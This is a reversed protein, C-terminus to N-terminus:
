AKDLVERVTRALDVKTFPKYSFANFGIDKAIEPSITNSYGTCLIIRIDEKIRKLEMALTDGTMHPMTMDTIVLAFRNPEAKFLDLAELSSTSSTVSYGLSELIRKGMQALSPEDDVFLISESGRIVEAPEPISTNDLDSTVPLYITFVTKISPTSTVLITGGYSDVLGRVMALGMGTGEGTAKTTFYPDFILGLHEPAIGCGTDSIVLEIYKGKKLGAPINKEDERIVVDKLSVEMIGGSERMAQAANTCLNLIIQHLQTANGMVLSSSAIEQRIEITTPTSPRILKLAEIVITDVRTPKVEEDSQRAFALIQKIIEKARMGGVYIEQLNDEMPSGKEADDLALECFGLISALINNFDHAIGGALNGISEM